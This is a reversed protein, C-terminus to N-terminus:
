FVAPKEFWRLKLLYALKRSGIGGVPSPPLAAKQERSQFFGCKGDSDLSKRDHHMGVVAPRETEDSPHLGRGPQDERIPKEFSDQGQWQTTSNGHSM